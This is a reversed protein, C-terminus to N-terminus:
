HSAISRDEVPDTSYPYTLVAKLNSFSLETQGWMHQICTTMFQSSFTKHTKESLSLGYPRETTPARFSVM